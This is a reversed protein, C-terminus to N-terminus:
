IILYVLQMAERLSKIIRSDVQQIIRPIWLDGTVIHCEYRQGECPLTVVGLRYWSCKNHSCAFILIELGLQQVTKFPPTLPSCHMLFCHIFLNCHCADLTLLLWFQLM